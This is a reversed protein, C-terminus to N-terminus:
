IVSSPWSSCRGLRTITKNSSEGSLPRVRGARPVPRDGDIAARREADRRAIEARRQEAEAVKAERYRDVEAVTIESLRHDRFWPLLHHTLEWEYAAIHKPLQARIGVFWASAFV